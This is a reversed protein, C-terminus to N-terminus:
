IHSISLQTLSPCGPSFSQQGTVLAARGPGLKLNGADHPHEKVHSPANGAPATVGRAGKVEHTPLCSPSFVCAELAPNAATPSAPEVPTAHGIAQVEATGPSESSATGSSANGSNMHHSSTGPGPTSGILLVAVMGLVAAIHVMSRSLSCVMPSGSQVMSGKRQATDRVLVHMM